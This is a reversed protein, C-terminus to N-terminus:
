VGDKKTKVFSNRRRDDPKFFYALNIIIKYYTIGMSSKAMTGVTTMQKLRSELMKVLDRSESKEVDFNDREKKLQQIMEADCNLNLCLSKTVIIFVMPYM